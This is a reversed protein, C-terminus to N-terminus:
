LIGYWPQRDPAEAPDPLRQALQLQGVPPNRAALAALPACIQLLRSAARLHGAAIQRSLQRMLLRCRCAISSERMQTEYDQWDCTGYRTSGLVPSASCSESCATCYRNLVYAEAAAVQSAHTLNMFPHQALTHICHCDAITRAIRDALCGTAGYTTTRTIALM